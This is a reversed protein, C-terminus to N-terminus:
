VVSGLLLILGIDNRNDNFDYEPHTIVKKIGFQQVFQDDHPSNLDIDGLRVVNPKIGNFSMCHAASLVFKETILSGGCNWKVSFDFWSLWGIAAVHSFELPDVEEGNVVYKEFLQSETPRISKYKEKCKDFSLVGEGNLRRSAYFDERSCCVLANGLKSTLVSGFSCIEIRKKAVLLNRCKSLKKCKGSYFYPDLGCYDNENLDYSYRRVEIAAIIPLFFILTLRKLDMEISFKTILCAISM